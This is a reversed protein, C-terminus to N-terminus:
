EYKASGGCRFQSTLSEIYGRVLIKSPAIAKRVEAKEKRMQTVM